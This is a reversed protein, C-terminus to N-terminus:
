DLTGTMELKATFRLLRLTRGVCRKDSYLANSHPLGVCSLWGDFRIDLNFVTLYEHVRLNQM